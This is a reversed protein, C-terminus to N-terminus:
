ALNLNNADVYVLIRHVGDIATFDMNDFRIKIHNHMSGNRLAIQTGCNRWFRSFGKQNRHWRREFAVIM